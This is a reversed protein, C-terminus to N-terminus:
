QDHGVIKDKTALVTGLLLLVPAFIIEPLFTVELLRLFLFKSRVKYTLDFSRGRGNLVKIESYKQMYRKEFRGWGLGIADPYLLICKGIQFRKDENIFEADPFKVRLLDLM